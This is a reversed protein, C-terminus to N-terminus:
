CGEPGAGILTTPGAKDIKVIVFGGNGNNGQRWALVTPGDLGWITGIPTLMGIGEQRVPTELDDVFEFGATKSESRWMRLHRGRGVAEVAWLVAGDQLPIRSVNTTIVNDLERKRRTLADLFLREGTSWVDTKEDYEGENKLYRITVTGTAAIRAGDEPKIAAGPAGAAGPASPTVNATLAVSDQNCGTTFKMPAWITLARDGTSLAARWGSASFGPWWSAPIDKSSDPVEVEEAPWPTTWATGNFSAVPLLTGGEPAFVGVMFPAHKPAPKPAPKPAQAHAYAGAMAVFGSLAAAAVITHPKM